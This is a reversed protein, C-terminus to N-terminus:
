GGFVQFAQVVLSGNLNKYTLEIRSGDSYYFYEVPEQVDASKTDEEDHEILRKSSLSLAKQAVVLVHERDVSQGPPLVMRLSKSVGEVVTVIVTTGNYKGCLQHTSNLATGQEPALFKHTRLISSEPQGLTLECLFAKASRSDATETALTEAAGSTLLCIITGLWAWSLTPWPWENLMHIIRRFNGDRHSMNKLHLLLM